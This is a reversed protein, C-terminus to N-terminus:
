IIDITTPLKLNVVTPEIRKFNLPDLNVVVYFVVAIYLRILKIM